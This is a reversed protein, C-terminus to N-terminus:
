CRISAAAVLRRAPASWEPAVAFLEGQWGQEEKMRSAVAIGALVAAVADPAFAVLLGSGTDSEGAGLAAFSEPVEDAALPELTRAAVVGDERIQQMFRAADIRAASPKSAGRRRRTFRRMM